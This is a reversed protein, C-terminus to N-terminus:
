RTKNCELWQELWDRRVLKRRGMTLHTLKPLGRVKGHLANHVHAKSCRLINAVEKVTISMPNITMVPLCIRAARASRPHVCPSSQLFDLTASPVTRLISPNSSATLALVSDSFRTTAVNSRARM